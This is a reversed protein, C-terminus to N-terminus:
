FLLAHQPFPKAYGARQAVPFEPIALQGQWQDALAAFAPGQITTELTDFTGRLREWEEHVPALRDLQRDLEDRTRQAQEQLAFMIWRIQDHVLERRRAQVRGLRLERRQIARRTRAARLRPGTEGLQRRLTVLEAETDRERELLESAQRELRFIRREIDVIRSARSPLMPHANPALIRM